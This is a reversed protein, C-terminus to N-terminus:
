YGKNVEYGAYLRKRKGSDRKKLPFQFRGRVNAVAISKMDDNNTM